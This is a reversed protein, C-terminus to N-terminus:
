ARAAETRLYLAAWIFGVLERAIAPIIKTSPKGRAALRAYRRCLRQQAQDALVIAWAPQDVRRQRLKTGVGPRHRYHWAAEVLVRRVHANGAKTLGHRRHRDGSSYEMPVLGLYAMLPRPGSFRHFGHLEAVITLATVTDIGRFCRLWGVPERYPAQAAVADLQADLTRGREELHEVEGLYHDFVDQDIPLALRLGHLWNRHWWGWARARRYILGRRLLFTGLRRKARCLDEKVDERARCLDRVAEEAPTPPHVPTLLRARFLEALKRADRRDTKIHEGPKVPILSPAVVTCDVGAAELQRQLTFGSGGAEYCTQVPGGAADQLRKALRRIAAPEHPVHWAVVAQGPVLMAVAISDKHVDLGVFTSDEEM